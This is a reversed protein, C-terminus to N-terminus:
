TGAVRDRAPAPRAADGWAYRSLATRAETSGLEYDETRNDSILLNEQEGQWLTRSAPWQDPTYARGDRGAVLASLGMGTIQATLNRRGSEMRYVDIKRELPGTVVAALVESRIMFANTRLHPAPFRPFGHANHVLARPYALRDRREQVLPPPAHRAGAETLAAVGARRDPFVEAYPGGLGLQFRNYSSVSGWSGSAGAVGAGPEELADRLRRLWGDCLVASYSNLFCYRQARVQEAAARYAALDLMPRGLMLQEHEVGELLELWPGRDQGAAFGNFLVMLSHEAEAAHRRYSGIFRALPGPGLPAWVLHVVCIEAEAM